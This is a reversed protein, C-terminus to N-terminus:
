GEMTHHHLLPGEHRTGQHQVLDEAAQGCACGACLGIAHDGAQGQWDKWWCISPPHQLCGCGSRWAQAAPTCYLSITHACSMVLLCTFISSMCSLFEKYKDYLACQLNAKAMEEALMASKCPLLEQRVRADVLAPQPKNWERLHKLDALTVEKHEVEGFFPQHSLKGGEASLTDLKWIKGANDEDATAKILYLKNVKIHKNANLAIAVTDTAEELGKVSSSAEEKKGKSDEMPLGSNCLLIDTKFKENIDDMTEYVVGERGKQQKGLLFLALRIQFKGFALAVKEMALSSKEVMSWGAHMLKEAKLSDDHLKKGKLKDWDARTILRSFGDKQASKPCTLQCCALAIRLFPFTTTPEKWDFYALLWTFDEGFNISGGYQRGQSGLICPM